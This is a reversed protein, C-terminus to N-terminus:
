QEQKGGIVKRPRIFLISGTKGPVAGKVLLLNKESDVLVVQLNEVTVQEDGMHGAMRLGKFVRGPTTGAGISGPLRHSKSGHTMPGRAFNHRKIRGAFGKGISRGTVNVRALDALFDPAILQGVQFSAEESQAIRFEQLHRFLSLGNKKFHGQEAKSLHKEKGEQYAVQIASYGDNEKTKVQAVTLPLLEIVTVPVADGNENFVQTMGAKKGITGQLTM